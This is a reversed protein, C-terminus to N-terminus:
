KKIPLGKNDTFSGVLILILDILIWIGFISSFIALLISILIAPFFFLSLLSSLLSLLLLFLSLIFLIIMLIGTGIKGVYFRHIGLWGLFFCLLGAILLKKESVEGGNSQKFPHGCELCAQADPSLHSIDTGCNPCFNHISMITTEKMKKSTKTPM